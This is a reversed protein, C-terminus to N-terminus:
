SRVVVKQIEVFDLGERDAGQEELCPAIAERISEMIEDLSRGQAYSGRLAPVSAVCTGESDQEM